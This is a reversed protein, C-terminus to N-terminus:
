FKIPNIKEVTGQVIIGVKHDITDDIKNRGAGLEKSWNGGSDRM